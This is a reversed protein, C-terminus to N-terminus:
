RVEGVFAMLILPGRPAVAVLARWEKKFLHLQGDAEKYTFCGVEGLVEAPDIRQQIMEKM